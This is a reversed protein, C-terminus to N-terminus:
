SDDDVDEFSPPANFLEAARLRRAREEQWELELEAPLLLNELQPDNAESPTM